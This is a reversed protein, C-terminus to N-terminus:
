QLFDLFFHGLDVVFLFACLFLFINLRIEWIGGSAWRKNPPNTQRVQGGSNVRRLRPPNFHCMQYQNTYYLARSSSYRTKAIFLDPSPEGLLVTITTSHSVSRVIGIQM